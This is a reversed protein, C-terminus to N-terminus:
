TVTTVFLIEQKITGRNLKNAIAAPGNAEMALTQRLTKLRTSRSEVGTCGAIDTPQDTPGDTSRSTPGDTPGRKVKEANKLNKLM